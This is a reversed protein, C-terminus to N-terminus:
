TTLAPAHRDVLTLFEDIWEVALAAHQSKEPTDGPNICLFFREAPRSANPPIGELANYGCGRIIGIMGVLCAMGCEAEYCSGDIEGAVVKARLTRVEGPARLLVDWFDSKIPQLNAASLNAARLDADRLNAASLNAARLDAARLDAARLNADRLNAARLDAARLNAASLNAARLDADRLNAARLDAASLNAASLNAASLNADRLNAARLDAASLNAARLNAASLNAASLNAARLDADRLNADRLNAASLNAARLNAASLSVRSELAELVAERVSTAKDSSYIVANSWRNRIEIPMLM